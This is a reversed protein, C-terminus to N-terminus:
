SFQGIWHFGDSGYGVLQLLQLLHRIRSSRDHIPQLPHIRSHHVRHLSEIEDHYREDIDHRGVTPPQADLICEHTARLWM